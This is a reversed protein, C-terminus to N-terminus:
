WWSYSRFHIIKQVKRNSSKDKSIVEVNTQFFCKKFRSDTEAEDKKNENFANVIVKLFVQDRDFSIHIITCLPDLGRKITIIEILGSSGHIFVIYRM